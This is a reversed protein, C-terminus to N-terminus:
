GTVISVTAYSLHVTLTALILVGVAFARNRHPQRSRLMFYGYLLRSLAYGGFYICAGAPWLGLAVYAAGFVLYFPQNESDNTLLHQARQCLESDDRLTGNWFAADEPYRFQRLVMRERGQLAITVVYKIFLLVLSVLYVACPSVNMM